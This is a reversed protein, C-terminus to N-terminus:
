VIKQFQVMIVLYTIVAGIMSGLISYKITFFDWATFKVSRISVQQLFLNIEAKTDHHIDQLLLLKQLLVSTYSAENITSNCCGSLVFLSIMSITSWTVCTIFEHSIGEKIYIIIGFNLTMTIGAIGGLTMILMQFGYVGNASTVIDCLVDYLMMDISLTKDTFIKPNDVGIMQQLKPVILKNSQSNFTTESMLFYNLSRFRHNILLVLHVFQMLITYHVLAIILIIIQGLFQVCDRYLTYFQYSLQSIFVVLFVLVEIKLLKETFLYTSITSPLLM